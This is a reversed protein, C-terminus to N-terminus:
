WHNQNEIECVNRNVMAGNHWKTECVDNKVM